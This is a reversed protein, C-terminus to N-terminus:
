YDDSVLRQRQGDNAYIGLSELILYYGDMTTAVLERSDIIGRLEKPIGSSVAIELPIQMTPFGDLRGHDGLATQISDRLEIDEISELWASVKTKSGTTLNVKVTSYTPEPAPGYKGSFGKNWIEDYVFASATPNKYNSRPNIRGMSLYDIEGDALSRYIEREIDGAYKVAWELSVPQEAMITDMIAKIFEELRNIVHKPLKSNKLGVGKTVFDLEEYVNGECVSNYYTYHKGRSTMIVVPMLFENKMAIQFLKESVVGISASMNALLHITCMSVIYTLAASIKVAKDSFSLKGEFWIVWEQLTFITSDTDSVVVGKRVASSFAAMNSPQSKTVWFARILTRYSELTETVTLITSAITNYGEPNNKSVAKLTTGRTIDMCLVGIYAMLDGDASSIVKEPDDVRSHSQTSLKDLFDWVFKENLDRLAKFNNSYYYAALQEPTLKELFPKVRYEIFEADRFYYKCSEYVSECVQEVTPCVLDYEEIAKHILDMDANRVVSVINDMAVDPHYYHRNGFLFRENNANAYSTTSCCTSTLTPHNSLNFLMTGKSAHAGSLSNNKVKFTSQLRDADQAGQKDGEQKRVFKLHKVKNRKDINGEIYKSLYSREINPNTYVTGSPSVIHGNSEIHHLYESFTTQHLSRDGNPARNTVLVEPDVVNFTGDKLKEVTFDRVEDLPADTMTSIYFSTDEVYNSRINFDRVYETPDLHFLNMM